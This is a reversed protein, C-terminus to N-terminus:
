YTSARGKQLHTASGTSYAEPPFAEQAEAQGTSGDTLQPNKSPDMMPASALQGAQKMM